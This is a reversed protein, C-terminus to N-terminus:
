RVTFDAEDTASKDGDKVTVKATATGRVSNSNPINISFTCVKKNDSTASDSVKTSDDFTVKLTCDVNKASATATIEFDSEGKKANSIDDITVKLSSSSSSNSKKKKKKKKSKKKTAAQVDTSPAQIGAADAVSVVAPPLLGALMALAWIMLWRRM